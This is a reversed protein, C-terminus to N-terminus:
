MGSMCRVQYPQIFMACGVLTLGFPCFCLSLIWMSDSGGKGAGKGM